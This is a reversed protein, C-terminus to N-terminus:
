RCSYWDGDFVWAVIRWFSFGVYVYFDRGFWVYVAITSLARVTSGWNNWGKWSLGGGWNGWNSWYSWCVSWYLLNGWCISWSVIVKGSYWL